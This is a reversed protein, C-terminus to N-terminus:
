ILTPLDDDQSQNEMGQIYSRHMRRFHDDVDSMFKDTLFAKVEDVSNVGSGDRFKYIQEILRDEIKVSIRENMSFVTIKYKPHPVEGVIRM